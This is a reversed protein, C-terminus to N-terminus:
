GPAAASAESSHRFRAAPVVVSFRSGKGPTSEIELRGAHRQAVAKVISLGLGTGGLERSRGQDVRYFREALRPIHEASIGPGEDVVTLRLAEPHVRVQLTVTGKPVGHRCANGILQELASSLEARAGAIELGGGFTPELDIVFRGTVRIDAHAQLDDLLAGLAFWEDMPPPPRGEIEALAMLDDIISQMRQTQAAMLALMSEREPAELPMSNLTEIFGAVVTLPTRLEHSANAVLDRRMQEARERETVDQSLVLLGDAYPRVIIQLRVGSRPGRIVIPREFHGARLYQVFEPVRVINTVPQMRDRQPDLSFHLSSNRNCWRVEHASTLLVVGNPSADIAALFSDLRRAQAEIEREYLAFSREIRYAVEGWFGSDPARMGSAGFRQERSLRAWRALRAGRLRERVLASVVGVFAGLVAFVSLNAADDLVRSVGLGAGAGLVALLFPSNFSAIM